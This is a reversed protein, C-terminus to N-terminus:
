DHRLAEYPQIRSARLAPLWAAVATTLVFVAAAVGITWPDAASVGYLQSRVAWAAALALPIGIAIGPIVVILAERIIMRMVDGRTAGVSMRVGIERVRSSVSYAVLGFLGVSSLVVALTAAVSATGAILRQELVANDVWTEMTFVARVLHEGSANVADVYAQQAAARDGGVRVHAMPAQGRRVDQMMPLYLGAVRRERISGVNADAVVGIIEVDSATSGSAIQMRHGVVDGSASLKKALTENVIAVKPATVNDAWTFDRGRLQAISYLRFFGPSVHDTVASAQPGGVFTVTETPLGGFFGLLAPYIGSFAAGDAGPIAALREQLAEFYPQHLVVSREIPNRSLKTFLIPRSHDQLDNEYLRALTTVFLGAGVVLIMSAAVQAILMVRASGRIRHSTGRGRLVDDMGRALARRAPLLGILVGVALSVAAAALLVPADPTTNELPVSKGVSVMSTLVLSAWWSLPLAVVLAAVSLLLGDILVQQILRARSVGMAIRVAFEHQRTLARALMLGSLNLCGVALLAAALAMVMTLSSGYRERVGSFGRAFSDVTIRQNTVAAQQPAPVTALVADQISPWRGLVEARVSSLTAGPALRGVLQQARAMRPPDSGLLTGRLFPLMLFLEDGGDMRAGTFGDETVGIVDLPRGDVVIRKGIASAPGFLRVALRATIVASPTRPDDSSNFLRGEKAGVGLVAFYEATVGEVGIDFAAGDYELRVISSSFAGLSAFSGQAGQLARLAEVFIASYNGTRGDTASISVLAGPAAVPLKKLVTPKLLSFITANAAIAVALTAIVVVSLWPARRIRRLAQLTDVRLTDFLAPM